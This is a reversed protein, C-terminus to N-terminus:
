PIGQIALSINNDEYLRWCWGWYQKLFSCCIILTMFHGESTCILHLFCHNDQQFIYSTKFWNVSSPSNWQIQKKRATCHVFDRWWILLGVRSVWHQVWNLDRPTFTRETNWKWSLIANVNLHSIFVQFLDNWEWLIQIPYLM